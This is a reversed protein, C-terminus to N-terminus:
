MGDAKRSLEKVVLEREASRWRAMMRDSSVFDSVYDSIDMMQGIEDHLSVSSSLPGLVDKIDVEPRSTVCIRFNPLGLRVLGELFNLVVERPTPIGSSNPCEDLADVIIYIPKEASVSLMERLCNTLASNSPQQTGKGHTSYIRFLIDCCPSSYASLQCLLSTVFNRLDQKKEEDRFDFYFFALSAQGANRLTIVHKILASSYYKYTRDNAGIVTPLDRVLPYKKWIGSRLDSIMLKSCCTYSSSVNEM